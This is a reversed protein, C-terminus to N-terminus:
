DGRFKSMLGEPEIEIETQEEMWSRDLLGTDLRERERAEEITDAEGNVADRLALAQNLLVVQKKVGRHDWSHDSFHGIFTYDDNDRVLNCGGILEDEALRVRGKGLDLWSGNSLRVMVEAKGIPEEDMFPHNMNVALPVHLMSTERYVTWVVPILVVIPLVSLPTFDFSSHFVWALLLATAAMATALACFRYFFQAALHLENFRRMGPPLHELEEGM